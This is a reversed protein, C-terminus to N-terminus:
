EGAILRELQTSRRENFETNAQRLKRQQAPQPVPSRDAQEEALAAATQGAHHAQMADIFDPQLTPHTVIGFVQNLRLATSYDPRKGQAVMDTIARLTERRAEDFMQPYVTRLAEVGEPTVEGRAIGDIVKQPNEVAETYRLFEAKKSEPVGDGVDALAALTPDRHGQPLKSALFNIAQVRKQVLQKTTEPMVEGVAAFLEAEKQSAIQAQAERIDAAKQTYAARLSGGSVARKALEHPKTGKISGKRLGARIGKTIANRTQDQAAKAGGISLVKDAGRAALVSATRSRRFKNLALLGLATTPDDTAAFGSGAAMVDTLSIAKNGEVRAVGDKASARVTLADSYRQKMTRLEDLLGPEVDELKGVAREFEDEMIGRLKELPEKAKPAPRRSDQPYIVDDLEKRTQWLEEFGVREGNSLKDRLASVEEDIKDARKRISTINSKRLEGTMEDVRGFFRALDPTTNASERLGASAAKSSAADDIRKHLKRLSEGAEDTFESVKRFATAMSDNKSFLETGDALKGTRLMEAAREQQGPRLKQMDKQILGFSKLTQSDRYREALKRPSGGLLDPVEIKRAAKIGAKGLSGALSLGGGLGAGFLLGEGAGGLIAEATLEKNGISAESVAQGAGFFAGEVGERAAFGLARGTTGQGAVRMVGREALAGLSAVGRQPAGIVRAVKGGASAAKGLAGGAKAAAGAAGAGGSTVLSPLFGVATGLATAGQQEQRQLQRLRRFDAGGAQDGSLIVDSGGFTAMSLAELGVASLTSANKKFERVETEESSEPRWGHQRMAEWVKSGAVRFVKGDRDRMEVKDTKRWAARGEQIAASVEADDLRRGTQADFVDAM